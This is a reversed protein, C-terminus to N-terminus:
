ILKFPNEMVLLSKISPFIVQLDVFVILYVQKTGM